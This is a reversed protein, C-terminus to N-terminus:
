AHSYTLPAVIFSKFGFLFYCPHLFLNSMLNVFDLQWLLFRRMLRHAPKRHSCILPWFTTLFEWSLYFHVTSNVGSHVKQKRFLTPKIRIKSWRFSRCGGTYFCFLVITLGSILRDLFVLQLPWSFGVDNYFVSLWYPWINGVRLSFSNLFETSLM